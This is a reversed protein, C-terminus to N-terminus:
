VRLDDAKAELALPLLTQKCNQGNDGDNGLGGHEKNARRYM